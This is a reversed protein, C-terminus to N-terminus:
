VEKVVVKTRYICNEYDNFQYNTLLTLDFRRAFELLYERRERELGTNIIIGNINLNLLDYISINELMEQACFVKFGLSKLNNVLANIGSEYHDLCITLNNARKFKNDQFLKKAAAVTLNLYFNIRPNPNSFSLFVKEDYQNLLEKELMLRINNKESVGNINCIVEYSDKDGDLKHYWLELSEKINKKVLNNASVKKLYQQYIEDSYYLVNNELNIKSIKIIDDINVLDRPYRVIAIDSKVQKLYRDLVRQNVENELVIVFTGDSLYYPNIGFVQSLEQFDSPEAKIRILSFKFEPNSIQSKLEEVKKYFLEDDPNLIVKEELVKLTSFHFLIKDHVFPDIKEHVETFRNNVKLRYKIDYSYPKTFDLGLYKEGDSKVIKQLYNDITVINDKYDLLRKLEDSLILKDNDHIITYINNNAIVRDLVFDYIHENIKLYTNIIKIELLKTAVKIIINNELATLDTYQSEYIVTAFLKEGRYNPIAYLYNIGLDRYKKQTNIDILELNTENLDIIIENGHNIMAEVVTNKLNDFHVSREYLREKKYDYTTIDSKQALFNILHDYFVFTIGEVNIISEIKKSYELLIDFINESTFAISVLNIVHELKSIIAKLQNYIENNKEDEFTEELDLANKALITNELDDIQDAIENIDQLNYKHLILKLKNKYFEKKLILDKSDEIYKSIKKIFNEGDSFRELKIFLDLYDNAISLLNENIDNKFIDDFLVFAEEYKNELICIKAFLYHCYLKGEEDQTIILSQNLADKAEPIMNQDIYLKTLNNLALALLEDSPLNEIIAKLCDVAKAKQNMEAYVYAMELYWRNVDDRDKDDIYQRKEFVYRYAVAFNRKNIYIYILRELYSVYINRFVTNDIRSFDINIISLAEDLKNYEIYIDIIYLNALYYYEQNQQLVCQDRLNKAQELLNLSPQKSILNQYIEKINM